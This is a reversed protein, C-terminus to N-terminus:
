QCTVGFKLSSPSQMGPKFITTGATTPPQNIKSTIIRSTQWFLQPPDSSRHICSVEWL